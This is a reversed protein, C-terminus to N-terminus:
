DKYGLSSRLQEITSNLETVYEELDDRQELTIHHSIFLEYLLDNFDEESKIVSM